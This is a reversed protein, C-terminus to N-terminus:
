ISVNKTLRYFSATMKSPKTRTNQLLSTPKSRFFLNDRKGTKNTKKFKLYRVFSLIM